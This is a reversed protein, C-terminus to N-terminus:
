KTAMALAAVSLKVDASQLISQGCAELTAGTTIVDDILLVNKRSLEEKDNVIFSDAVNEWRETRHKKTQTETYRQRTVNGTLVPVNMVGSMGTCIVAAQNYGRKREKDAYLPLPILYDIGLFRNSNLLTRGLIEGLYIGIDQNGKYKLQHIIHQILSEKSFYFESHAAVLPVRGWFIKEIPNGAHQAYNTHPLNSICRLCLLHDTQVLDSGCGTCVHPYFLHLTDAFITKLSQM